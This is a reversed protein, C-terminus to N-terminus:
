AICSDLEPQHWLAFSAACAVTIATIVLGVLVHKFMNNKMIDGGKLKNNNTLCLIMKMM